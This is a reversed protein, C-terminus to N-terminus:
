IYNKKNQNKLFFRNTIIDDLWLCRVTNAPLAWHECLSTLVIVSDGLRHLSVKEGVIM